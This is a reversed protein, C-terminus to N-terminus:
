FDFTKTLIDHKVVISNEFYIVLFDDESHFVGDVSKGLHYVLYDKYTNKPINVDVEESPTEAGLINIIEKKDKGFLKNKELMDDLMLFRASVKHQWKNSTFNSYYSKEVGYSVNPIALTLFLILFFLIGKKYSSKWIYYILFLYVPFHILFCIINLFNTIVSWDPSLVVVAMSIPLVVRIYGWLLLVIIVCKLLSKFNLNFKEM